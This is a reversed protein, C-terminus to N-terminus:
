LLGGIQKRLKQRARFARVKITAATWGTLKQVEAVSREQLYLMDIVLREAPKLMGLLKEVLDRAALKHDPSPTDESAALNELMAAQEESLDAHRLEPRAKEAALQNRCTNVAIRSVWHSIPVKGSYQGLHQFVKVFIMQALDEEGTHRPRYGHVIKAVVPYLQRILERAADNDGARARSVLAGAHEDEDM